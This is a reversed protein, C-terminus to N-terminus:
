HEDPCTFNLEPWPTMMGMHQYLHLVECLYVKVDIFEPSVHLCGYAVVNMDIVFYRAVAFLVEIAYPGVYQFLFLYLSIQVLISAM